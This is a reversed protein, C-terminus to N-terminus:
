DEDDKDIKPILRAMGHERLYAHLQTTKSVGQGEPGSWPEWSDDEPGYGVWRVLFEMRAKYRPDGRHAIISDIVFERNDHMAVETPNTVLKDYVFPKLRTVHEKEKAQTVMNKLTYTAGTWGEVRYPGRLNTMFKNPPGKKIGSPPYERLVFSGVAFETLREADRAVIHADNIRHQTRQAVEILKQQAALMKSARASLSATGAGDKQDMFIGRDLSIANGFLLEAASVGISAVKSANMIRKVFPLLKSWEGFDKAEYILARLHRMVEKNAREVLGNEEKSYALTLEHQTGVLKMFEEIVANVFQSGNDSLM